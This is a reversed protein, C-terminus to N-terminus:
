NGRHLAGYYQTIGCSQSSQPPSVKGRGCDYSPSLLVTGPVHNSSLIHKIVLQTFRM